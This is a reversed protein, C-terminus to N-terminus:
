ILLGLGFTLSFLLTIIALKKLHPDLAKPNTNGIVTKLHLLLLPFTILFMLQWVSQFYVWTYISSCLMAGIILFSHYYRANNGGILVVLTRKGSAKDNERDRMNNLNLVGVSLMGLASAPLLVLFRFDHTHLFYTGAVGVVGFFLFVFLDGLGRYGYPKKGVTYKIAALIAAIGSAFFVFPYSWHMGRTGEIVLGSGSILALITFIFLAKKMASHTIVGSQVTRKPGIRGANDAGNVADGYDNALNSLIQLFITTLLSLVFVSKSFHGNYAALFSGLAIVSLALPLTRLRFASIWHKM